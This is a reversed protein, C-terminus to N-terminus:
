RVPIQARIRTGKGLVSDVELRGALRSAREHMSRLGLHGPFDGHPEFGVGNDSVELSIKEADCEMKLRVKSANAHKVINHLAEQAIRYVAEKVEPSARPEDCLTAEVEIEHRARLAAARKKLAAALGEKELSEPRLEFILARMEALGAEALSLVYELPETAQAPDRELLTRATKAGLAIGYLAQSVSDHLERALRQREELAAKGRAEAFLRANEVAVTTQDAVAGLFAKEDEGPKQEPLYLLNIAGLPRERSILPVIYATDWLAERVLHHISGYSANTLLFQRVNHVLVPKQTRFAELTPSPAGARWSADLGPKSGEPLGHSGVPHLTDTREDSLAVVCAVATSANVMSKALVDMMEEMSLDLTINSAIHSLTAVREELLEQMRARETVDHAVQCLTERGHRVITSMSVEVDLLSGDKRRYKRQGILNRGEELARRINRDISDRDHAVFDYLTLNQLEERTYGLVEEFAPNSEVILRSEADVLCINETVQKLVTRYLRESEKLAEENKKRETVDRIVDCIVKRGGYSILSATVEIDVLSGDKRRYQREGLFRSREELIRQINRDISERDHAILDYIKMSLLEETPYGLLEKFAANSELINGTAAEFLFIGEAAQEVVARYREESGRLEEEVRQRRVAAGLTSAAAKLADMEAASWERETSCEDFGIFGWWEGEVFIPVVVISLIDQGRLEVQESEPLDRTHGYVLDGRGLEVEWRGFGGERYPLAKLQPNDIQASVEPAVWEYRQAAWLGGDEGTFNEFIHVRSVRAAQGLRALVEDINEEWSARELFREAAFRVAELVVDRRRLEEEARKRETVDRANLVIAGLGPEDLLNAATVEFTRWSGDAHRLRVEMTLEGNPTQTSQALLKQVVPRDDPHILDAANSGVLDDPEYGLIREVSPSVYERTGDFGLVTILDSSNQVLSWFRGESEKLAKEARIRERREEAEELGRRVTACLRALNDKMVYDHAGARMAEVAAEEGLTSSVVIFPAELGSKRFIALAESSRFRPMRYDSVVVDWPGREALAKKMAAPTEVREYDPEYGGRELERVLLLADDKSGEVILM